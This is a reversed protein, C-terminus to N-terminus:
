VVDRPGIDVSFLVGAAAEDHWMGIALRSSSPHIVLSATAAVEMAQTRGNWALEEGAVAARILGPHDHQAFCSDGRDLHVMYPLPQQWLGPGGASVHHAAVVGPLWLAAGM